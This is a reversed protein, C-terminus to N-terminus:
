APENCRRFLSSVQHYERIRYRVPYKWGGVVTNENLKMILKMAMSKRTCKKKRAALIIVAVIAGIYGKGVNEENKKGFNKLREAEKLDHGDNNPTEM